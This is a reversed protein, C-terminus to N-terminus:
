KEIIGFLEDMNSSPIEMGLLYTVYNKGDRIEITVNGMIAKQSYDNTVEIKFQIISEISEFVFNLGKDAKERLFSTDSMMDLSIRNSLLICQQIIEASSEIHIEKKEM